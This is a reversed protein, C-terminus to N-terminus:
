LVDIGLTKTKNAVTAKLAKAKRLTAISMEATLPVPADHKSALVEISINSPEDM